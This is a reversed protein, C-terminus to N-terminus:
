ATKQVHKKGLVEKAKRIVEMKEEHTLPPKAQNMRALAARAHARDGEPFKADGHVHVTAYKDKQKQSYDAM